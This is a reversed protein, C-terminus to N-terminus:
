EEMGMLWDVDLSAGYREIHLDNMTWAIKEIIEIKSWEDKRNRICRIMTVMAPLRGEKLVISLFDLVMDVSNPYRLPCNDNLFEKLPM